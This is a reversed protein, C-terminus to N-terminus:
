RAPIDETPIEFDDHESVQGGKSQEIFFQSGAKTGAPAPLALQLAGSAGAVRTGIVAGKDDRVTVVAGPEAQATAVVRSGALVVDSVEPAAELKTGVGAKVTFVDEASRYEAGQAGLTIAGVFLETEVTPARFSVRTVSGTRAASAVVKGSLDRVSVRDGEDSAIDVIVQSGEITHTASPKLPANKSFYSGGGWETRGSLYISNFGMDAVDELSVTFTGDDEVPVTEHVGAFGADRYDQGVAITTGPVGTGRLTASNTDRDYGVVDLEFRQPVVHISVPKSSFTTQLGDRSVFVAEVHTTGVELRDVSCGAGFFPEKDTVPKEGTCLIEKSAADRVILEAGAHGAEESDVFVRPTRDDTAIDGGIANQGDVLYIEPPLNSWEATPTAAMAPALPVLTAAVVLAAAGVTLAPTRSM